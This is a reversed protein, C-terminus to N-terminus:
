RRSKLNFVLGDKVYCEGEDGAKLPAVQRVTIQRTSQNYALTARYKNGDRGGTFYIVAQNGKAECGTIMCNDVYMGQNYAIYITGHCLAQNGENDEGLISKDYLNLDLTGNGGKLEWTGAFPAAKHLTITQQLKKTGGENPVYTFNACTMKISGDAQREFTMTADGEALYATATAKSGAIKVNELTYVSSGFKPSMKITGACPDGDMSNPDPISKTHFDINVYMEPSYWAGKFTRATQAFVATTAACVMATAATRLLNTTTM